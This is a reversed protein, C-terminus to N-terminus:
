KSQEYVQKALKRLNIRKHNHAAKEVAWLVARASKIASSQMRGSVELNNMIYDGGYKGAAIALAYALCEAAEAVAAVESHWNRWAGTLLLNASNETRDEGSLWSHSWHVFAPLFCVQSVCAIAFCIRQEPTIVPLPIQKITTLKSCGFKLGRNRKIKGEAKAEFLMPNSFGAHIPNLLVALLPDNYYHLWGPGCLEGKGDTKHTVRRGWRTQNRTFRNQNTLKFAKM